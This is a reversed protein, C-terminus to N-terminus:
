SLVLKFKDIFKAVFPNEEIIKALLERDNLTYIVENESESVSVTVTVSYKTLTNKIWQNL